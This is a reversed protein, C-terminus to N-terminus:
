EFFAHQIYFQLFVLHRDARIDSLRNDLITFNYSLDIAVDRTFEYRLRPAIYYLQYDIKQVSYQTNDSKNTSYGADLNASLEYTMKYSGNLRLYNRETAGAYGSAPMLDRIYSVGGSFSQGNYNLALKGTWSWGETTQERSVIQFDYPAVVIIEAKSFRSRTYRPGGNISFTWLEDINKTLGFTGTVSDMLSVQFDYHDYSVNFLGKAAAFYKGLDYELGGSVNHNVFTSYKKEYSDHTYAYSLVGITKETLRQDASLSANYHNRRLTTLLLGAEAIDRDPRTDSMYSADASIGLSQTPSFRARGKYFQDTAGLDRNDIYERHDIKAFLEADLRETKEVLKVAPSLTTIFDKKIDTTVLYINSNYEEKATFSPVVRFEDALLWQPLIVFPFLM